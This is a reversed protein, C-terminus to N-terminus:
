PGFAIRESMGGSLLGVITIVSHECGRLCIKGKLRVDKRPVHCEDRM